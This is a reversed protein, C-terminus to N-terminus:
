WCIILVEVVLVLLLKNIKSNILKQPFDHQTDKEPAASYTTRRGMPLRTSRPNSETKQQVNQAAKLDNLFRTGSLQPQIASCKSAKTLKTGLQMEWRGFVIGPPHALIPHKAKAKTANEEAKRSVYKPKTRHHLAPQNQAFLSCHMSQFYPFHESPEGFLPIAVIM